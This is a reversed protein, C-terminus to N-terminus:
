FRRGMGRMGRGRGIGRFFAGRRRGFYGFGAAMPAM